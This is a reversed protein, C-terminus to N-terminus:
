LKIPYTISELKGDTGRVKATIYVAEAFNEILKLKEYLTNKDEVPSEKRRIKSYLQTLGAKKKPDDQVIHITKSLVEKMFKALDSDNEYPLIQSTYKEIIIDDASNGIYSYKDITFRTFEFDEYERDSLILDTTLKECNKECEKLKLKMMETIIIEPVILYYDPKAKDSSHVSYVGLLKEEITDKSASNFLLNYNMDLIDNRFPKEIYKTVPDCTKRIIM